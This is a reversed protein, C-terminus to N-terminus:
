GPEIRMARYFVSVNEQLLVLLSPVSMEQNQFIRRNREKWVNWWFMFLLGLKKKREKPSFASTFHIVWGAPGDVSALNQYAPLDYRAAFDHWLAESFNRQTLLHGATELLCFCLPCTTNCPWSKKVMNDATLAKNHLILWAFFNCKPEAKAAWIEKDPFHVVSGMFQCKYASAVTFKGSSTWRWRIADKENTLSVSSIMLLLLVYEDLLVSDNILRTSRIWNNNHLL